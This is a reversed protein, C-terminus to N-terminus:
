AIKDWKKKKDSLPMGLLGSYQKESKDEKLGQEFIIKALGTREEKEESLYPSQERPTLSTHKQTGKTIISSGKAYGSGLFGGLTGAERVFQRAEASKANRMSRNASEFRKRKNYEKIEKKKRQMELEKPEDIYKRKAEVLKEQFSSTDTDENVTEMEELEESNISQMEELKSKGDMDVRKIPNIAYEKPRLLSAPFREMFDKKNEQMSMQPNYFQSIDFQSENYGSRRLHKAAFHIFAPPVGKRILENYDM